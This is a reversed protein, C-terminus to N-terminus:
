VSCSLCEKEESMVQVKQRPNDQDIRIPPVANLTRVYYSSTKVGLEWHLLHLSFLEDVSANAMYVNNSASQDVYATRDAHMKALTSLPIDWVTRYLDRLEQPIATISQISGNNAVIADRIAPTYMDLATLDKVLYPNVITCTTSITKRVFVHYPVPEFSDYVGLIHATAATPMLAVCLSNRLGSRAIKARLPAWDLSPTVNKCMDFHLIGKSAMSGPYTEYHGQEKALKCSATLAAHYIHEFIKLNVTQAMPSDYPLRMLIFADALGAVGIAIPRHRMNSVRAEPVPYYTTDICLNLNRVLLAVSAELAVYDMVGNRVHAKLNVAALNCVAIEDPSSKQVIEACLNSSPITGLNNQNSKNNCHDKFLLYPNGVELQITCIRTLLYNAKITKGGYTEKDAEYKAYLARFEDGHCQALGAARSPCFLTWDGNDRVREMFVDCVWLAYFLDRVREDPNGDLSPLEIFQEIELHWIELYMAAVGKRKGGQDVYKLTSEFVRLMPVIGSSVGDSGKIRAGKARVDHIAVGNGGSCQSIRAVDSITEFIGVISDSKITELYCSAMGPKPACSNFMSPSGHSIRQLSLENYCKILHNIDQKRYMQVAMRMYMYQPREVVRDNIKKLYKDLITQIGVYTYNYDRNHRIAENLKDANEMVFEHSADDVSGHRWLAAFVDSFLPQTEKHLNSVLISVALDGADPHDLMLSAAVAATNVDIDRTHMNTVVNKIVKQTIQFVTAQNLKTSVDKIRKQIKGFDLKEKLGGRKIVWGQQCEM